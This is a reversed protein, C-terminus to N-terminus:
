RHPRLTHHNARAQRKSHENSQPNHTYTAKSTSAFDLEHPETEDQKNPAESSESKQKTARTTDCQSETRDGCPSM